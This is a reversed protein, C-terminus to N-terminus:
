RKAREYQLPWKVDEGLEKAAHLPFYPDRLLQRALIILDAKGQKLIEEAQTAETILGVAGTLVGTEKRIEESFPVQYGPSLPISAGDVNGGTSCDVVDVDMEKLIDVLKISDQIAWGKDAWETASIRVFLPLDL